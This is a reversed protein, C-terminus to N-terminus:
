IGWNKIEKISAGPSLHSFFGNIAGHLAEEKSPYGSLDRFHDKAGKERVALSAIGYYQVGVRVVKVKLPVEVDKVRVEYIGVIERVQLIDPFQKQLDDEETVDDRNGAPPFFSDGSGFGE